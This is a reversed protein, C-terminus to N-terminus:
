AAGNAVTAPDVGFREVFQRCFSPVSRYGCAPAVAKLPRRTTQLLHLGHDLRADRLLTRLSTGELALRRRLTAGSMALREEIDSSTWARAPDAGVLLRIRAALAPDQARRFQAAGNRALALLLGLLAHDEAAADVVVDAVADADTKPLALLRRLDDQLPALAGTTAAPGPPPALTHADLLTRAMDVVRWPFPICWARYVDGDTLNQVSVKGPRHLMLYHGAGVTLSDQGCHLVKRGRLPVILAPQDLEVVRLAYPQLASIIYGGGALDPLTTTDNMGAIM